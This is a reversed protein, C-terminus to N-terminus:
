ILQGAKLEELSPEMTEKLVSMVIDLRQVRHLEKSSGGRLVASGCWMRLARHAYTETLNAMQVPQM